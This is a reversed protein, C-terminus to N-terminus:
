MHETIGSVTYELGIYPPASFKLIIQIMCHLNLLNLLLTKKREHNVKNAKNM